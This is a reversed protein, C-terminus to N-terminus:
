DEYIDQARSNLVVSVRLWALLAASVDDGGAAPAGFERAPAPATGAPAARRREEADLGVVPGQQTETDDLGLRREMARKYSMYKALDEKTVSRRTNALADMLMKKTIFPVIDAQNPDTPPEEYSEGKEEAAKRAAEKEEWRRREEAITQRIAYKAAAKCIGAIDAPSYGETADAQDPL